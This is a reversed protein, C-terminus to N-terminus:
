PDYTAKFNNNGRQVFIIRSNLITVNMIRLTLRMLFHQLNCLFTTKLCWISESLLSPTVARLLEYFWNSNGPPPLLHTPKPPFLRTAGFCVLRIHSIACASFCNPTNTPHVTSQFPSQVNPSHSFPIPPTSDDCVLSRLPSLFCWLVLSPAQVCQIHVKRPWGVLSTPFFRNGWGPWLRLSNWKKKRKQM